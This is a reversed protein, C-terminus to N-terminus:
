PAIEVARCANELNQRDYETWGIREAARVLAFYLDDYDAGATLYDTQVEYYLTAITTIGMERIWYGNFWGGDTLLYCLKNNVGCNTHIYGHDNEPTPAVYAPLSRWNESGKRDADNYPFTSPWKMNRIAGGPLDEGILWKVNDSDNGKENTQDIWEGWMDSFSESIAGSENMYLLGSTYETVGHTFEHAVVDDVVFGTGFIFYNYPDGVWAANPWPCPKDPFCVRVIATLTMGSNDISDRGHMDRYFTYADRLYDYAKDADPIGCPAWGESRVLLGTLSSDADYIKRRRGPHILSCRLAIEGNVADVLVREAVGLEPTSTVKIHWILRAPGTNGVVSPAYIMLTAPEAQLAFRPNDQMLAAVAINEADVETINPADWSGEIELTEGDTMIDSAVYEVGSRDNLHVLTEAAFVPLDAYTQAFRVRSGVTDTRVALPVLDSAQKSRGFAARHDDLFSKATAEPRGPVVFPATFDQGLPAKLARLYGHRTRAIRSRDTPPETHGLGKTHTPRASKLVKDIPSSGAERPKQAATALAACLLVTAFAVFFRRGKLNQRPARRTVAQPMGLNSPGYSKHQEISSDAITGTTEMAKGKGCLLNVERALDVTWCAKQVAGTDNRLTSEGSRAPDQATM